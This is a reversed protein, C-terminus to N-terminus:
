KTKNDQKKLNMTKLQDAIATNEAIKNEAEDHFNTYQDIKIKSHEKVVLLDNNAHAIDEIAEMVKDVAKNVKSDTKSLKKGIRLFDLLM